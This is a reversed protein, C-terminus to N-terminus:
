SQGCVWAAFGLKHYLRLASTNDSMVRLAVTEMGRRKLERAALSMLFSALGRRRHAPHVMVEIIFPGAPTRDWPTELVTLVSAALDTGHSVIPSAALNLAGYEGLYVREMEELAKAPDSVVNRPYAAFYLNALAEKDSLM